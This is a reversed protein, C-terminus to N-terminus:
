MKHMPLQRMIYFPLWDFSFINFLTCISDVSEFLSNVYRMQLDNYKPEFKDSELNKPIKAMVKKWDDNTQLTETIRVLSGAPMKRLEINKYM